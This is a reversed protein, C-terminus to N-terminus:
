MKEKVDDPIEEKIGLSGNVVVSTDGSGVNVMAGISKNPMVRRIRIAGQFGEKGEGTDNALILRPESTKSAPTGNEYIYYVLNTADIQSTMDYNEDQATDRNPNNVYIRGDADVGTLVIYHENNAFIGGRQHSVV